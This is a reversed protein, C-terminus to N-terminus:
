GGYEKELALLFKRLEPREEFLRVKDTPSLWIFMKWAAIKADRLERGRRAYEIDYNIAM